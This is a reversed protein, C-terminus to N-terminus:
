AMDRPCPRLRWTPRRLRLRQARRRLNVGIWLDAAHKAAGSGRRRRRESPRPADGRLREGPPVGRDQHKCRAEARDRPKLLGRRRAAPGRARAAHAARQTEADPWSALALFDIIDAWDQGNRDRYRMVRSSIADRDARDHILVRRLDDRALPDLQLLLRRLDDNNSM